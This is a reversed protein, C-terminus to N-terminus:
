KGGTNTQTAIGLLMLATGIYLVFGLLDRVLGLKECPDITFYHGAAGYSLGSCGGSPMPFVWDWVMGHDGQLGLSDIQNKRETAKTEYDAKQTTLAGDTPTGSEDIKCPPGGPWGCTPNQDPNNSPNGSATGRPSQGISGSPAKGSSEGM